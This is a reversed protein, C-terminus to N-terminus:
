NENVVGIVCEGHSSATDGSWNSAGYIPSGGNAIAQYDEKFIIASEDGAFVPICQALIATAILATVSKRIYKKFLM